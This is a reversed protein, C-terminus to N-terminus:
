LVKYGANEVAERLVSTEVREDCLIEATGSEHSVLASSVGETAELAAKVRGSCHPCMMGEVKLIVTKEMTKEEKIETKEVTKVQVRARLRHLRLANSVVLVSSVSMAAAGFMPSLTMGLPAFLGAALPIGIVNYGFAWWLNEGINRLTKRSIHLATVADSLRSKMICVDATELAVDTGTGIAMSVDAAALAAADNVGDGVMLVSGEKQLERVLSAKDLPSMCAHVRSIGAEAAVAQAVRLSDGTAMVPVIGMATLTKVAARSDERLPDALAIVGLVRSVHAFYIPTKGKIELAAVAESLVSIDAHSSLAQANGGLLYEGDLMARVGGYALTEFDSVEIQSIRREEAYACVARALPHDSRYELAYALSLLEEASVGESPLVDTVAPTGCTLTGTKDLLAFRVHAATELVAANKFLIGHTAAAGSGVMIAVPTALGLACPCSVVLVSVARVLATEVTADLLLHLLFTLLSIGMVCPVFIAAVKDALRAIPAKTASAERVARIISALTGEEGTKETRCLLYGSLLLSGQTVAEGVTRDIPMSEGTLASEDLAGAGREIVGDLPVREGARLVFSEGLSVTEIPVRYERGDRWVTVTDAKLSALGDLAATTKKKARSELWKGLTILTPVMAASEFYFGHLGHHAGGMALCLLVTSYVFASFSGLAVLTDMTPSLHLLARVGHLLMRGNVLLVLASLVLQLWAVTLTSALLAPLPFGLMGYGMSVYMLPLLLCLSLLFRSLLAGREKDKGGDDAKAAGEECAGYGAQTVAAIVAASSVEGAVSLDGTLLNVECATVGALSKVASEVRASCAACSMGSVKYRKM